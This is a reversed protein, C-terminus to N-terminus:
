GPPKTFLEALVCREAAVASGALALSAMLVVAGLASATRVM